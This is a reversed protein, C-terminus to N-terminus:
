SLMQSCSRNNQPTNSFRFQIHIVDELYFLFIKWRLNCFVNEMNREFVAPANCLGFPMVNFEYLGHAATFATKEEYKEEVEVQWYGPRHDISSKETRTCPFRYFQFVFYISKPHFLRNPGLCSTFAQFQLVLGERWPPTALEVELDPSVYLDLVVPLNGQWDTLEPFQAGCQTLLLAQRAGGRGSIGSRLFIKPQM